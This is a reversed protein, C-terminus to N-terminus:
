ERGGRGSDWKKKSAESVFKIKGEIQRLPHISIIAAEPRKDNRGNNEEGKTRNKYKYCKYHM